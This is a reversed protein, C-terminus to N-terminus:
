GGVSNTSYYVFAMIEGWVDIRLEFGISFIHPEEPLIDVPLRRPLQANVSSFM